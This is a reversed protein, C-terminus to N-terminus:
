QISCCSKSTKPTCGVQETDLILEPGPEQVGDKCILRICYTTGPELDIAQTKTTGASLEIQSVGDTNDWKMNHLKWQLIYITNSDSPTFDVSITTQIFSFSKNTSRTYHKLFHMADDCIAFM